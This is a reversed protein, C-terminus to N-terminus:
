MVHVDLFGVTMTKSPTLHFRLQLTLDNLDGDTTLQYDVDFYRRDPCFYCTLQHYEYQPHFTCPVEFPDIYPLDNCELFGDLAERLDDLTWNNELEAIQPIGEYRKESILNVVQRVIPEALRPLEEANWSKICAPAYVGEEDLFDFLKTVLESENM